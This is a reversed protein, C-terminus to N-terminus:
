LSWKFSLAPDAGAPIKKKAARAIASKLQRTTERLKLFNLAGMPLAFRIEDAKLAAAFDVFKGLDGRNHEGVVLVLSISAAAKKAKRLERLCDIGKMTQDFASRVRCIGDHIERRHSHIKVLFKSVGAAALAESVRSYALMRGNTLLQVEGAGRSRIERVFGALGEILTPERGAITVATGREHYRPPLVGDAGSLDEPYAANEFLCTECGQNCKEGVLVLHSVGEKAISGDQVFRALRELGSAIQDAAGSCGPSNEVCSVAAKLLGIRESTRLSLAQYLRHVEEVNRSRYTWPHQAFYGGLPVDGVEQETGRAILDETEALRYLSVGPNIRVDNVNIASFIGAVQAALMGRINEKLGEMTQWPHFFIFSGVTEPMFDRPDFRKRLRHLIEVAKKVEDVSDRNLLLLDEEHFSELGVVSIMFRYGHKRASEILRVLREESQVIAGARFQGSFAVPRIGLKESNRIVRELAGLYDEPFPVAIERLTPLEKQLVGIQRALIQLKREEPLSSYARAGACYSCGFTSTKEDFTVGKFRPNLRVDRRYPCSQISVFAIEQVLSDPAGIFTYNFKPNFIDEGRKDKLLDGAERATGAGGIAALIAMHPDLDKLGPPIDLRNSEDLCYVKAGLEARLLGPLWPLWAAHMIVVDFKKRRAIGIFEDITRRNTEEEGAKMLLVFMESRIGASELEGALLSLEMNGWFRSGRALTNFLIIAVRSQQLFTM